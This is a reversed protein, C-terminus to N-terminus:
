ESYASISVGFADLPFFRPSPHGRLMRSHTQPLSTFEGLPTRPSARGIICQKQMNSTLFFGDSVGKEANKHSPPGRPGPFSGGRSPGSLPQDFTVTVLPMLACCKVCINNKILRFRLTEVGRQCDLKLGQFTANTL